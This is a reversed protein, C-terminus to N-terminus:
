KSAHVTLEINRTKPGNFELLIVRQWTGLQLKANSFPITLSPGIISGWLHDPFHAPNHPHRWQKQPTMATIADLLDEDTGPDLDAATIAATTHKVFVTAIGSGALEKELLETIDIVQRKANTAVTLNM